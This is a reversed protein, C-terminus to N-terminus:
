KRLNELICLKSKNILKEALFNILSVYINIKLMNLLHTKKLAFLLYIIKINITLM